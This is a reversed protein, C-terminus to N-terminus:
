YCKTEYRDFVKETVCNRQRPRSNEILEEQNNISQRRANIQNLRQKRAADFQSFTTQHSDLREALAICYAYYEDDDSDYKWTHRAGTADLKSKIQKDIDRIKREAQVWTIEGAQAKQELQDRANEFHNSIDNMGERTFHKGCGTVSLILLAIVFQKFM